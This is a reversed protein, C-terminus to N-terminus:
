MVRKDYDASIQSANNAAEADVLPYGLNSYQAERNYIGRIDTCSCRGECLSGAHMAQCACDNWADSMNKGEM